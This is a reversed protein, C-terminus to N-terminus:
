ETEHSGDAAMLVGTKSYFKYGTNVGGSAKVTIDTEANDITVDSKNNYPNEPLADGKVYPGYKFTADKSNSINGSADTYRTLQAIFAKADTDIDAPKTTPLGCGPYTNGHTHYYIEISNRLQSLSTRLTNLKTDDTSISIQPIIITALIGLLIVVILIEILTFGSQNKLKTRWANSLNKM